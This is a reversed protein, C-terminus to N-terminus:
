EFSGAFEDSDSNPLANAIGSLANALSKDAIAVLAPITDIRLNTAHVEGLVDLIAKVRALEIRITDVSGTNSADGNCVAHLNQIANM